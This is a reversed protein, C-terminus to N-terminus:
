IKKIADVPQKSTINAVLIAASKGLVFVMGSEGFTLSIDKLAHVSVGKKSRYTKNISKLKLM